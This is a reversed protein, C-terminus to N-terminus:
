KELVFTIKAHIRFEAIRGKDVKATQRVIEIGTIGRLTKAARTVAQRAADDWSETSSAVLETVRAVAM